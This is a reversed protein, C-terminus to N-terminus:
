PFDNPAIKILSDLFEERTKNYLSSHVTIIKELQTQLAKVVRPNRHGVLAVGYGGMCDIYEKNNIDWVHSGLGREVTVPFRQYINGMFNDETM